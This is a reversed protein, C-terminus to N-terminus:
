RPASRRASNGDGNASSTPDEESVQMSVMDDDFDMIGNASPKVSEIASAINAHGGPTVSPPYRDGAPEEDKIHLGEGIEALCEWIVSTPAHTTIPEVGIVDIILEATMRGAALGAEMLRATVEEPLHHILVKADVHRVLQGATLVKTRLGSDVARRLLERAARDDTGKVIGAREVASMICDWLIDTAVHEAMLEPTITQVIAEPSLTGATLAADFMRVLVERPMAKALVAPSVHTLIEPEPIVRTELGAQLIDAFWRERTTLM